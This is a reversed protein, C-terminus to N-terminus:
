HGSKINLMIKDLFVELIHHLQQFSKAFIPLRVVDYILADLLDSLLASDVWILGKQLLSGVSFM